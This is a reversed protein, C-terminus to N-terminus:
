DSVRRQLQQAWEAARELEGEKLPGEAAKVFFGEPLAIQEGGKQRLASAIPAAAYGFIKVMFTLVWSGAEEVAIRTDFAAARAGQLADRPISKLFQTTAPTPRFQRTPSGVLLLDVGRLQEMTVESVRLVPTNGLAAGIAQAIKETNGFVSDYLVLSKM